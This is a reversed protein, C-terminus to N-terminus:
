GLSQANIQMEATPEMIVHQTYENDLLLESLDRVDPRRLDGYHGNSDGVIAYETTLTAARDLVDSFETIFESFPTTNKGSSPPRYITVIRVTSTPRVPLVVEICEFTKAPLPTVSCLYVTTKFLIGVGGGRRNPRPLYRFDYGDPTIAAITAYDNGSLWTETFCIIDFDHEKVPMVHNDPKITLLNSGNSCTRKMSIRRHKHAGARCGHHTPRHGAHCASQNGLTM